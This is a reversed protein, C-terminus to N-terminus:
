RADLPGPNELALYAQLVLRPDLRFCTAFRNATVPGLIQIWGQVCKRLADERLEVSTSADAWLANVFAVRETAVWCDMGNHQLTQARGGCVLSEFLDPWHM